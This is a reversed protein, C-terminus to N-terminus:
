GRRSRLMAIIFALEESLQREFQERRQMVHAILRDADAQPLGADAILDADAYNLGRPRLGHRTRTEEEAERQQLQALREVAPETAPLPPPPVALMKLISGREWGLEDEVVNRTEAASRPEASLLRHIAKAPAGPNKQEADGIRWLLPEPNGGGARLIMALDWVAQEATIPAPSGGDLIRLVSGPKWALGRELGAATKARLTAGGRANEIGQVTALSIGGSSALEAQTYGLENRRAIVADALARLKSQDDM